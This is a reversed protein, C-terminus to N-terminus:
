KLADLAKSLDLGNSQEKAYESYIVKDDKDVVTISRANLQNEHILFGNAKSFEKTRYDSMVQVNKNVGKAGCYRSQAFPLDQSIVMFTVDKHEPALLNLEATQMSCVPTDLSPVTEIVRVGKFKSANITKQEEVTKVPVDLDFNFNVKDGVKLVKNVISIPNGDLTLKASLILKVEDPSTKNQKEGSNIRVAFVTVIGVLVVGLTLIIQKASLKKRAKDEM